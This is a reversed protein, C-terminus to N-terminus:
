KRGFLKEYLRSKVPREPEPQHTLLMTAQNRWQDRDTKLDDIQALLLARERERELQEKELIQTLQAHTTLHETPTTNHENHTTNPKAPYVRFLEATDIQWQNKTDRKASM